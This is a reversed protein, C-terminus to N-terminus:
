NHLHMSVQQLRLGCFNHRIGLRIEVTNVVFVVDVKLENIAADSVILNQPIYVESEKRM